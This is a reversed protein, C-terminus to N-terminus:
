PVPAMLTDILFTMRLAMLEPRQLPDSVGHGGDTDEYLYTPAGLEQLRAVMKRSHGPGGRNDSMATTVLFTPYRVGARAIHLPSYTRLIKEMAPDRPDGYEGTWAGGMGMVQFRPMDILPVDSVVAGFLGPRQLCISAALLGGNSLGFVGMQSPRTFGGKVLDEAVAIFDDYSNQRKDQMAVRHSAEGREGGGRIAPIAIAGGRKFWLKAGKGGIDFGFYAPTMSIAFAGYGTMLTPTVQGPKITRPRILYYDIMTGEKSRAQRSEAVMGSADFAAPESALVPGVKGARLLRLSAPVLVAIRM